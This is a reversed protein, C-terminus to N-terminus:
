YCYSTLFYSICLSHIGGDCQKASQGSHEAIFALSELRLAWNSSLSRGTYEQSLSRWLFIPLLCHPVSSLLTYLVLTPWQHAWHTSPTGVTFVQDENPLLARLRSSPPSYSAPIVVSSSLRPRSSWCPVGLCLATSPSYTSWVWSMRLSGWCCDCRSLAWNFRPSGPTFM